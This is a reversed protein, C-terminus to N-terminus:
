TQGALSRQSRAVSRKRWSWYLDSTERRPPDSIALLSDPLAEEFVNFIAEIEPRSPAQISIGTQSLFTEFDLIFRYGKMIHDFRASAIDRRYAALFEDVTDFDWTAGADRVQLTSPTSPLKQGAKQVLGEWAQRLTKSNFFAKYSKSKEM